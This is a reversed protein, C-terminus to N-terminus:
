KKPERYGNLKEEKIIKRFLQQLYVQSAREIANLGNEEDKKRIFYLQEILDKKGSKYEGEINRNWGNLKKRV